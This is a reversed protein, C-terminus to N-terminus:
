GKVWHRFKRMKDLLSNGATARPVMLPTAGEVGVLSKMGPGVLPM